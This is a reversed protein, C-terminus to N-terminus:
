VFLDIDHYLTPLNVHAQAIGEVIYHINMSWFYLHMFEYEHVIHMTVICQHRHYTKCKKTVPSAFKLMAAVFRVSPPKVCGATALLMISSGAFASFPKDCRKM